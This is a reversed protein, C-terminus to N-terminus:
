LFQTAWLSGNSSSASISSSGWDYSVHLWYDKPINGRTSSVGLVLVTKFWVSFVNRLIIVGVRWQSLVSGLWLWCFSFPPLKVCAMSPRWHSGFTFYPDRIRRAWCVWLFWASAFIGTQVAQLRLEKEVYERKQIVLCKISVEKM